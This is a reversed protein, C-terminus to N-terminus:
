QNRNDEPWNEFNIDVDCIEALKKLQHIKTRGPTNTNLYLGEDVVKYHMMDADNPHTPTTNLLAKKNMEYPLSIFDLLNHEKILYRLAEVMADAQYEEAVKYSNMKIVYAM